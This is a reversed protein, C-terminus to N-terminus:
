LERNSQQDRKKFLWLKGTANIFAVVSSFMAVVIQFPLMVLLCPHRGTAPVACVLLNEAQL